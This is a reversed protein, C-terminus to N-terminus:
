RGGKRQNHMGFVMDGNANLSQAKSNTAAATGSGDAIMYPNESPLAGVASAKTSMIQPVDFVSQIDGANRIESPREGTLNMASSIGLAGVVGAGGILKGNLKKGTYLNELARGQKANCLLLDKAMGIGDIKGRPGINNTVRKVLNKSGSGISKGASGIEKAQGKLFEKAIGGAGAM